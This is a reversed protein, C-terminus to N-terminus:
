KRYTEQPKAPPTTRYGWTGCREFAMANWSKRQAMNWGLAKAMPSEIWLVSDGAEAHELIPPVNAIGQGTSVAIFLKRARAAM